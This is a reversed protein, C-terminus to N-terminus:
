TQGQCVAQSFIARVTDSHYFHTTEVLLIVSVSRDHRRVTSTISGSGLFRGILIRQHISTEDSLSLLTKSSAFQMIPTPLSESSPLEEECSVETIKQVASLAM